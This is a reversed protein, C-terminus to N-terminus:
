MRSTFNIEAVPVYFRHWALMSDVNPVNVQAVCCSAVLHTPAAM